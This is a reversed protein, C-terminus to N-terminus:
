GKPYRLAADVLAEFLKMHRRDRAALREPHWHVGVAFSRGSVEIGEIMGDPTVANVTCTQDLAKVLQHHQCNVPLSE